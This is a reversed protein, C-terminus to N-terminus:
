TVPPLKAALAKEADSPEDTAPGPPVLVPASNALAVSKAASDTAITDSKKASGASSGFFYNVAAMVVIPASSYLNTRLTDNPLFFVAVLVGAYILLILSALGPLTWAPLAPTPQVAVPDAM